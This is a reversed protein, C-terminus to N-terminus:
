LLASHSFLPVKISYPSTSRTSLAQAFCPGCAEAYLASIRGWNVAYVAAGHYTETMGGCVMRGTAAVERTGCVRAARIILDSTRIYFWRDFLFV